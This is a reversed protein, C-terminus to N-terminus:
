SELSNTQFSNIYINLFDRIATVSNIDFLMETDDTRTKSVLKTSGNSAPWLGITSVTLLHREDQKCTEIKLGIPHLCLSDLCSQYAGQPNSKTKSEEIRTQEDKTTDAADYADIILSLKM